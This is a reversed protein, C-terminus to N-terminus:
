PVLINMVTNVVAQWRATDYSLHFWSVNKIFAVNLTELSFKTPGFNTIKLEHKQRRLNFRCAYLPLIM